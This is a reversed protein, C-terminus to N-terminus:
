VPMAFTKRLVGYLTVQIENEDFTIIGVLPRFPLVIHRFNNGGKCIDRFSRGGGLDIHLSSPLLPWIDTVM